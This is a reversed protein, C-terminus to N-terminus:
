FVKINLRGEMYICLGVAYGKEKGGVRGFVVKWMLGGGNNKSFTFLSREAYDVAM